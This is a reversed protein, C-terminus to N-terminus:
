KRRLELYNRGPAPAHLAAEWGETRLRQALAEMANQYPIPEWLLVRGGAALYPKWPELKQAFGYRQELMDALEAPDLTDPKTMQGDDDGNVEGLSDVCLLLDFGAAGKADAPSPAAGGLAPPLAPAPHPLVTFGQAALEDRVEACPDQAVYARPAFRRQILTAIIGSGAGIDLIALGPSLEPLLDTLVAKLRGFRYANIDWQLGRSFVFGYFRSLTSESRYGTFNRHLRSFTEWDQKPLKAKLTELTQPWSAPHLGLARLDIELENTGDKIDV